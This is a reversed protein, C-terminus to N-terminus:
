GGVEGLCGGGRGGCGSSLCRVAERASRANRMVELLAAGTIRATYRLIEVEPAHKFVRMETLATFLSTTDLNQGTLLAAARPVM